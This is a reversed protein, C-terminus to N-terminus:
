NLWASDFDNKMNKQRLKVLLEKYTKLYEKYKAEYCSGKCDNVLKRLDNFFRNSLILDQYLIAELFLKAFYDFTFAYLDEHVKIGKKVWYDKLKISEAEQQQCSPMYFLEVSQWFDDEFFVVGTKLDIEAKDVFDCYFSLQDAIFEWFGGGTKLWKKIEQNKFIENLYEFDYDNKRWEEKENLKKLVKDLPKFMYEVYMWSKDHLMNIIQQLAPAIDKAHMNELFKERILFVKPFYKSLHDEFRQLNKKSREKYLKYKEPNDINLEKNKKEQKESNQFFEHMMKIFDDDFFKHECVIPVVNFSFLFYFIFILKNKKM